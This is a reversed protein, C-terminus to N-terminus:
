GAHSEYLSRELPVSIIVQTGGGPASHIKVSGGVEAAREKMFQLGFKPGNMSPTLAPDFGAGDDRVIVQAQGDHVCLSIRVERTHAHKRVNTLAEQIIRLLQASVMPALSANSLDPAVKLETALGHNERLRRLYGELASLFDAGSGLGARAGLIYERVDAHADQAVEALQKLYQEAQAAHGRALLGRVTQVQMKVFGLVQGLSDHLERGVRDREQLTALARQHEVLQEQVAEQETIDHLLILYGLHFGRRHRLPSKCVEYHRTEKGTGTSIKSQGTSEEDLCATWRPSGLLFQVVSGRASAAPLGLINAAASNLDVIHQQRDLVLVGERMQEIMTSRAVLLLDFMGMGFLVVAYIATSFTAAIVTFDLPAVPNVRGAELLLTIKPAMQGCLCMGAALRHLPSRLFLWILILSSALSVMYGYATFAWGVWNRVPHVYNTVDFDIWVLHHTSDTIVLLTFLVPPVTLFALTRRNLWRNLNAYDLLFCLEATAIPIMWLILFKTWLIKTSPDSLALVLAAGIAFPVQMVVMLLFSLAGPVSRRNWTYIAVAMDFGAALLMFWVHLNHTSDWNM